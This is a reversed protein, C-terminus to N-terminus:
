LGDDERYESADERECEGGTENVHVRTAGGWGRKGSGKGISDEGCGCGDGEDVAGLGTVRGGDGEDVAGLRGDVGSRCGTRSEGGTGTERGESAGGLGGSEGNGHGSGVGACGSYAAPMVRGKNVLGGDMGDGDGLEAACVCAGKRTTLEEGAGGRRLMLGRSKSAAIDAVELRAVFRHGDNECGLGVSSVSSINSMSGVGLRECETKGSSGDM